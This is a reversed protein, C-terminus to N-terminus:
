YKEDLAPTVPSTSHERRKWLIIALIPVLLWLASPEPVSSVATSPSDLTNSNDTADSLGNFANELLSDGTDWSNGSGSTLLDTGFTADGEGSNENGTRFTELGASQGATLGIRTRDSTAGAGQPQRWNGAPPLSVGSWTTRDVAHSFGLWELSGPSRLEIERSRGRWRKRFVERKWVGYQVVNPEISDACLMEASTLTLTALFLIRSFSLKMPAFSLVAWSTTMLIDTIRPLFCYRYLLFTSLLKM